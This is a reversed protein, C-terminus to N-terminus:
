AIKTNRTRSSQETHKKYRLSQEKQIFYDLNQSLSIILPNSRRMFVLLFNLLNKRRRIKKHLTNRNM